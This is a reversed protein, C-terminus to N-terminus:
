TGITKYDPLRLRRSGEPGTLAQFPIAKGKGKCVEDGKSWLLKIKILSIFHLALLCVATQHYFLPDQLNRRTIIDSNVHCHTQNLM